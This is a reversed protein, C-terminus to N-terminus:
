LQPVHLFRDRGSQAHGHDLAGRPPELGAGHDHHGSGRKRRAPGPQAEELSDHADGTHNPVGQRYAPWWPPPNLMRMEWPNAPGNGVPGAAVAACSPHMVVCMLHVMFTEWRRGVVAAARSAM